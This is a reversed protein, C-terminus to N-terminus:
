KATSETVRTLRLDTYPTHHGLIEIHVDDDLRAFAFWVEEVALIEFQTPLGDVSFSVAAWAFEGSYLREQWEDIRQNAEDATAKDRPEANYIQIAMNGLQPSYEDGDPRSSTVTIADDHVEPRRHWVEQSMTGWFRDTGDSAASKLGGSTGLLWTGDWDAVRFVPLTSAAWRELDRRYDDDASSV